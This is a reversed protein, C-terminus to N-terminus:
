PQVELKPVFRGFEEPLSLNTDNFIRVLILNGTFTRTHMTDGGFYFRNDNIENHTLFDYYFTINSLKFKFEQMTKFLIHDDKIRSLLQGNLPTIFFKYNIQHRQCLSVIDQLYKLREKSIM